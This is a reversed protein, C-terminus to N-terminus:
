CNSNTAPLTCAPLLMHSNPASAPQCYCIATHQGDAQQKSRIQHVHQIDESSSKNILFTLLAQHLKKQAQLVEMGRRVAAKMKNVQQKLIKGENILKAENMPLQQLMVNLKRPSMREVQNNQVAPKIEKLKQM